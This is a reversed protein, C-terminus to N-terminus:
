GSLQQFFDLARPIIKEHADELVFHGAHDFVHVEANPFHEKWHPLFDRETFCFDDKGWFILMPHDRFRALGPELAHVVPLTPHDPELPIDQVFRHIAIRNRWSNYPALYGARVQRTFRRRQSTAFLFTALLFGNLGRVMFAGYGPIRCMKIRYPIRPPFFVATNLVVFGAIKEPHRQAYGMGIAGGWDHMVLTVRSVDLSEILRELNDTHQKLTYAYEQPKDSLGCGIHDPAIVRHRKSAAAVLNRYYFSWTPNGHVMVIAANANQGDAPGEDLYHMKTGDLEFWHSDFPYLDKFPATDAVM